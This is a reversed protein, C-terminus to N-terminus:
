VFVMMPLTSIVISLKVNKCDTIDIGDNNWYSRNVITLNDLTLNTCLEFSLGWCSAEGAKLGEIVVTNCQSFRFLKPRMTENPRNRKLNYKPDVAIGAHHLSDINLALKLGQGDITGKGKLAINNAKSALILAMQSNDDKKPSNPRGEFAMNHYDKPNTSGLLVSGEELYLSVNSKMEISGSLFQGKPFVVVGGKNNFAADIAKQVAITNVTKGDAKAGYDTILFQKQSKAKIQASCKFGFLFLSSIIVIFFLYSKMKSM